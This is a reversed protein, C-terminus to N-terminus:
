LTARRGSCTCEAWIRLILLYLCKLFVFIDAHGWIGEHPNTDTFGGHFRRSVMNWPMRAIPTCISTPSPSPLSSLSVCKLRDAPSLVIHSTNVSSGTIDRFNSDM